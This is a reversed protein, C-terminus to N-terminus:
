HVIQQAGTIANRRRNSHRGDSSQQREFGAGAQLHVFYFISFKKFHMFNNWLGSVSVLYLLM